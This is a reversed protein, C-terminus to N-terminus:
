DSPLTELSPVYIEQSTIFIFNSGWVHLLTPETVFVSHAPVLGLFRSGLFVLAIFHRCITKVYEFNVSLNRAAVRVILM